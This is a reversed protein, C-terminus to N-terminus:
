GGHLTSVFVVEDGEELVTEREEELEWDADNILVLIGPRVTMGARWKGDADKRLDAVDAGQGKDDEHLPESDQMDQEEDPNLSFLDRRPKPLHSHFTQTLHAILDAITPNAKPRTPSSSIPLSITHHRTNNFLLELGGTFSVRIPIAAIPSQTSAPPGPTEQTSTPASTALTAAM